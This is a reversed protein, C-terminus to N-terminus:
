PGLSVRLREMPEQSVTILGSHPQNLDLIVFVVLSVLLIFGVVGAVGPKHTAGHQQGMFFMAVVSAVFLVLVISWPLRDHLAFIRAALNSTLNNLTNTLPVAAPTGDSLAQAVLDTMRGQAAQCQLIHAELVDTRDINQAVDIRHQTYERIVAQLRPRIPEKLLTACTYFDGIANSEALVASRREAHKGLAMSFTFALLLGLLALSADAVKSDPPNAIVPRHRSQWSAVYWAVFMTAGIVLVTLWAPIQQLIM